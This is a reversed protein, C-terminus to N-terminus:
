HQVADILMISDSAETEFDICTNRGDIGGFECIVEGSCNYVSVLGDTCQYCPDIWFVYDGKYRYRIIQWGAMGMGIELNQKKEKLWQIDELPNDSDCTLNIDDDKTECSVLSVFAMMLLLSLKLIM